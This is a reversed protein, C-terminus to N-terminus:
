QFLLNIPLINFNAYLYLVPVENKAFQLIRLLKNNLTSPKTPFSKCTNAYLKIGYLLHPYVLAFYLNLRCDKPMKYRMKYFIGIFKLIKKYVYEIHESWRPREDIIIGLYKCSSLKNIVAGNIHLDLVFNSRNKVNPRFLVYCTKEINFSLKNALFWTSLEDLYQNCKRNLENLCRNQVCM